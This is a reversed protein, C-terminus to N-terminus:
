SLQAEAVSISVTSSGGQYVNQDVDPSGKPFYFHFDYKRSESPGPSTGNLTYGPELLYGGSLGSVLGDYIQTGDSDIRVKLAGELKSCTASHSIGGGCVEAAPPTSGSYATSTQASPVTFTGTLSGDNDITMTGYGPSSNTTDVATGDTTGFGPRINSITAVAGIAGSEGSFKHHLTGATFVTAHAPSSSSFSAGSGVAIGLALLAVTLGALTRKPNRRLIALRSM